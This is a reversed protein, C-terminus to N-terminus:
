SVEFMGFNRMVVTDGEALRNTIENIITQLVEFVDKQTIEIVSPELTTPSECPSKANLSPPWLNIIKSTIDKILNLQHENTQKL